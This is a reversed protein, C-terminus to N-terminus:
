GELVKMKLKYESITNIMTIANVLADNLKSTYIHKNNTDYTHLLDKYLEIFKQILETTTVTIKKSKSIIIVLDFAKKMKSDMADSEIFRRENADISVLRRMVESLGDENIEFSSLKNNVYLKMDTLNMKSIKEVIESHSSDGNIEEESKGLIKGFM